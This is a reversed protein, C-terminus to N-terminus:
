LTNSCEFLGTLDKLCALHCHIIYMCFLFLSCLFELYHVSGFFILTVRLDNLRSLVCQGM